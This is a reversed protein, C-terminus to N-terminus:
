MEDPSDEKEARYLTGMQIQVMAYRTQWSLFFSAHLPKDRFFIMKQACLEDMCCIKSGRKYKRKM